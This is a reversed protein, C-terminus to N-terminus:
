SPLSVTQGLGAEKNRHIKNSSPLFFFFGWVQQMLSKSLQQVMFQTFPLKLSDELKARGHLLSNVIRDAIQRYHTEDLDATFLDKGM